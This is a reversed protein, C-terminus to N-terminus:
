QMKTLQDINQTSKSVAKGIFEVQVAVQLMQMQVRLMDALTMQEMPGNLAVKMASWSERFEVGLSKMGEIISDGPTGTPAVPELTSASPPELVAVPQVMEAFRTADVEQVRAAPAAVELQALMAGAMGVGGVPDM